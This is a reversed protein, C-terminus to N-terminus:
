EFITAVQEMPRCVGRQKEGEAPWPVLRVRALAPPFTNCKAARALM